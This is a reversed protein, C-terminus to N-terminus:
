RDYDIDDIEENSYGKKYYPCSAKRTKKQRHKQRQMYILNGIDDIRALITNVLFKGLTHILYLLFILIGLAIIIPWVLLLAAKFDEDCHEIADWVEGFIAGLLFYCFVICVIWYWAM